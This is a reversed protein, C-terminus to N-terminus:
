PTTVRVADPAGSLLASVVAATQAVVMDRLCQNLSYKAKVLVTPSLQNFVAILQATRLNM